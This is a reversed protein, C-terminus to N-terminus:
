LCVSENKIYAVNTTSFFYKFLNDVYQFLLNQTQDEKASQGAPVFYSPTDLHSSQGRWEYWSWGACVLHLGHGM